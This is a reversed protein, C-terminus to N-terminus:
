RLPILNFSAAGDGPKVLWFPGDVPYLGWLKAEGRGEARGDPLDTWKMRANGQAMLLPVLWQRWSDTPATGLWGAISDAWTQPLFRLLAPKGYYYVFIKEPRLEEPATRMTVTMRDWYQRFLIDDLDQASPMREPRPCLAVSKLGWHAAVAQNIWFNPDYEIDQQYSGLVMYRDGRVSLPPVCIDKNINSMFISERLTNIKNAEYFTKVEIIILICCWVCLLISFFKKQYLIKKCGNNKCKIFLEHSSILGSILLFVSIITYARQPPPPSFIYACEGLISLIIFILSLTPISSLQYQKSIRLLALSSWILIFLPLWFM